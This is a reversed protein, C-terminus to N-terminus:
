RTVSHCICNALWFARVHRMVREVALKRQCNLIREKQGFRRWQFSCASQVVVLSVSFQESWDKLCMLWAERKDSWVDTSCLKREHGCLWVLCMCDQYKRRGTHVCDYFGVEFWCVSVGGGCRFPKSASHNPLFTCQLVTVDEWRPLWCIVPKYLSVSLVEREHQERRWVTGPTQWQWPGCPM